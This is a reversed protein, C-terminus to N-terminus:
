YIFCFFFSLLDLANLDIFQRIFLLICPGLPMLVVGKGVSGFTKYMYKHGILHQYVSASVEILYLQLIGAINLM